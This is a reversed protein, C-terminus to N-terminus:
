EPLHGPSKRAVSANSILFDSAKFCQSPLKVLSDCVFKLAGKNGVVALAIYISCWRM